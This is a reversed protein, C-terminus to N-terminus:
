SSAYSRVSLKSNAILVLSNNLTEQISTLIRSLLSWSQIYSVVQQMEHSFVCKDAKRPDEILVPILENQDSTDTSPANEPIGDM